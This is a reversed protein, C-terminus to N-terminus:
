LSISSIRHIFFTEHSIKESMQPIEKGLQQHAEIKNEIKERMQKYEGKMQSLKFHGDKIYTLYFQIKSKLKKSNSAREVSDIFDYYRLLGEILCGLPM